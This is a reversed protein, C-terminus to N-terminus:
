RGKSIGPKSIKIDSRKIVKIPHNDRVNIPLLNTFIKSFM